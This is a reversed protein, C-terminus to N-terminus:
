PQLFGPQQSHFLGEPRGFWQWGSELQHSGLFLQHTMVAGEVEPLNEVTVASEDFGTFRVIKLEPLIRSYRSQSDTPSSDRREEGMRRVLDELTECADRRNALYYDGSKREVMDLAGNVIVDRNYDIFKLHLVGRRPLNSEYSPIRVKIHFLDLLAEGIARDDNPDVGLRELDDAIFAIPVDELFGTKGPFWVGIPKALGMWYYLGFAEERQEEPLSQIAPSNLLSRSMSIGLNVPSHGAEVYPPTRKVVMTGDKMVPSPHELWAAPAPLDSISERDATPETTIQTPETLAVRTALVFSSMLLLICIVRARPTEITNNM